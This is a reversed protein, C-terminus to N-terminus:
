SHGMKMMVAAAGCICCCVVLPLLICIICLINIFEARELVGYGNNQMNNLSSTYDGNSYGADTWASQSYSCFSGSFRWRYVMMLIWNVFAVCGGLNLLNNLSLIASVKTFAFLIIFVAQILLLTSTIFFLYLNTNFNDGVNNWLAADTSAVNAASVPAWCSNAQCQDNTYTNRFEFPCQYDTETNYYYKYSLAFFTINLAIQFFQTGLIAGTSMEANMNVKKFHESM